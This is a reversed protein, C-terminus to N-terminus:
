LGGGVSGLMQMMYVMGIAFDILLKVTAGMVPYSFLMKMRFAISRNRIEEAQSRMEAVRQMLNNLQVSANGTGSESIAHLMKM